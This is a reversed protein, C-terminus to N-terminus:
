VKISCVKPKFFERWKKMWDSTFGFVITVGECANERAKRRDCTIVEVKSQNVTNSHGKHNALTIVKIKTQRCKTSFWELM